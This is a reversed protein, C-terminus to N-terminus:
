RSRAQDDSGYRNVIENWRRESEIIRGMKRNVKWAYWRAALTQAWEWGVYPTWWSSRVEYDVAERHTIM